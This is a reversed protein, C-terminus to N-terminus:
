LTTLNRVIFQVRAKGQLRREFRARQDGTPQWMVVVRHNQAVHVAVADPAAARANRNFEDPSAYEIAATGCGVNCTKCTYHLTSIQKSM